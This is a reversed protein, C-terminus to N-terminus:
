VGACVLEVVGRGDVRARDDIDQGISQPEDVAFVVPRRIMQLQQQNDIGARHDFVFALVFHDDFLLAPLLAARPRFVRRWGFRCGSSLRQGARLAAIGPGGFLFGAPAIDM